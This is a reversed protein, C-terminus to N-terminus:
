GKIHHGQYWSVPTIRLTIGTAKVGHQTLPHIFEILNNADAGPMVRHIVNQSYTQGDKKIVTTIELELFIVEPLIDGTAVVKFKGSVIPQFSQEEILMVEDQILFQPESFVSSREITDIRGLVDELMGAQSTLGDKLALNQEQLESVRSDKCATIAFLCLCFSLAKIM